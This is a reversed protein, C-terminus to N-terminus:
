TASRASRARSTSGCTRPDADNLRSGRAGEGSDAQGDDIKPLAMIAARRLRTPRGYKTWSVLHPVAREDRLAALGDIAGVAVVDAWSKRSSAEILVDYASERKTKGLSRAAEAEVLYSADSSRRRPRIADESEATRVSAGSPWPSPAGCRRIFWRRPACSCRSRRRRASGASRRPANPACPGCRPTTASGRPGWRPSPSPTTARRWRRPRTLWRGRGTPAKSRPTARPLMDNPAKTNVEGLIRMDPDVIVFAPRQRPCPVAFTESKGADRAARRPARAALM